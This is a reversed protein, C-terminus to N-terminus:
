IPKEMAKKRLEPPMKEIAYRLATRPMFAKNKIVYDYVERQHSESAAKLMWGYGKQVLDDQDNLLIDAIDFIDQLFKGKRAPIILTVAAARRSWRNDSRAWKKLDNVYKPYMDVFTGVTHNCLTDCSAWNCVYTNVWKEFIKFDVPEYSKRLAYSWQCAVFSEEMYGSQWLVECLELIEAKPKEKISKLHQKAIKTVVATKVGYLKVEEKFFRFGSQRTDDDSNEKLEKRVNDIILNM